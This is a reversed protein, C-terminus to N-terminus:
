RIFLGDYNLGLVKTNSELFEEDTFPIKLNKYNKDYEEFLSKVEDFIPNDDERDTIIKFDGINYIKAISDYEIGVFPEIDFSLKTIYYKTIIEKNGLDLDRIDTNNKRVKKEIKGDKDKCYYVIIAEISCSGTKGIKSIENEFFGNDMRIYKYNSDNLM